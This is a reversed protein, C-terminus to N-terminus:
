FPPNIEEKRIEMEEWIYDRMKPTFCVDKCFVYDYGVFGKKTFLAYRCFDWLLIDVNCVFGEVINKQAKCCFGEFEKTNAKKQYIKTGLTSM